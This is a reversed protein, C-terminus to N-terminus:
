ESNTVEKISVIQEGYVSRSYSQGKKVITYCWVQPSNDIVEQHTEVSIDGPGDNRVTFNTTM